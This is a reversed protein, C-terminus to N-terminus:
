GGEGRAQETEIGTHKSWEQGGAQWIMLEPQQCDFLSLASSSPASARVSGMPPAHTPQQSSAKQAPPPCSTMRAWGARSARGYTKEQKIGRQKTGRKGSGDGSM